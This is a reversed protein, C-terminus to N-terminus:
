ATVKVPCGKLSSKWLRLRLKPFDLPCLQPQHDSLFGWLQGRQVGVISSYIGNWHSEVIPPIGSVPHKIALNARWKLNCLVDPQSAIGSWYLWVLTATIRVWVSMHAGTSVCVCAPGQFLIGLRKCVAILSRSLDLVPHSNQQWRDM